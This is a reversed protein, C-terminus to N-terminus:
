FLDLDLYPSRINKFSVKALQTYIATTQPHKHGLIEQLLHLDLGRELSHVAYSHRLSGVTAEKSINAKLLAKNFFLQVSRPSYYDGSEGEFLLDSPKYSNIYKQLLEVLGAPLALHITKDIGARNLILVRQEFDVDKLRLTLLENLKLGAAYICALIAKHKINDTVILLQKVEEQSLIVPLAETKSVGNAKISLDRNFIIKFFLKLAKGAQVANDIGNKKGSLSLLYDAILEDTIKSQPLDWYQNYFVFIANRYATITQSNYKGKKLQETFKEILHTV